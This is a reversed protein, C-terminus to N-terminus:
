GAAAEAKKMKKFTYYMYLGIILYTLLLNTVLKVELGLQTMRLLLEPVHIASLMVLLVATKAWVSIWILMGLLLVGVIMSATVGLEFGPLESYMDWFILGGFLILNVFVPIIILFFEKVKSVQRSATYKFVGFVLLIFIFSIFVSGGILAYSYSLRLNDILQGMVSFSIAGFIILPIYKLWAKKDFKMENSIMEMYEKPSEGVVQEIPKGNREAEELHSEIEEAIERIEQENKGSSLLYLRLDDMFRRSEKSLEPM